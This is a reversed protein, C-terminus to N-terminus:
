LQGYSRSGIRTSRWSSFRRPTSGGRWGPASSRV